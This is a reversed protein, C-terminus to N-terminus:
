QIIKRESVQNKSIHKFKNTSVDMVSLLMRKSVHHFLLLSSVLFIFKPFCILFNRRCVRAIEGTIAVSSMIAMATTADRTVYAQTMPYMFKWVAFVPLAM